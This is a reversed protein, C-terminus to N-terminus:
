NPLPCPIIIVYLLPSSHESQEGGTRRAVTKFKTQLELLLLSKNPM